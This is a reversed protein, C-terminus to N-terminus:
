EEDPLSRTELIREISMFRTPYLTVPADFRDLDTLGLLKTIYFSPASGRGTRTIVCNYNEIADKVVKYDLLFYEEMKTKQIIDMEYQIGEIYERHKEKPIKKKEENWKQKIIEKLEKNADKSIRPMKIEKNINQTFTKIILTNDLAQIAQEESIVGQRRYRELIEDYSPFDLVFNSEEPYYMGKANLFLTRYKSDEPKIYHSDNGHIMPINYRKHLDLIKKNFNVQTIDEHAQIELFFYKFHKSCRVLFEEDLNSIGGCCATTVMVDNGPLDFLIEEDIRAKYYYGDTNAISITKNIARRGNENVALLVIHFNRRDKEHRNPVFYGETGIVLTLDNAQCLAHAEFVNGTTGHELSVYTTHGLEKIREIYDKPKVVCDLTIVNSYHTHKHYNVYERTM